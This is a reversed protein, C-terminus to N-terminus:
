SPLLTYLLTGVIGSGFIVAIPSIRYRRLLFLSVLFLMCEVIRFNSLKISTLASQFLALLLISLGAGAIMAVIAPRLGSLIGQM